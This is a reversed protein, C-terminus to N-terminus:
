NVLTLTVTMITQVVKFFLIVLIVIEMKMNKKINERAEYGTKEVEM